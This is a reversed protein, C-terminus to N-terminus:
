GPEYGWRDLYPQVTPLVAAFHREYARWRGVARTNVPKVVQSYSPTSIFGKRRANEGPQLMADTWPLDLFEALSRVQSEFDAVFSEYRVERYTPKLLATERYWFDFARRYGTALTPLDRCLMTFELARFHQMYCSLIVDCPHRVALLLRSNPFLRRIVPIALLNMPNKDVLRQGPQLEVRRAVQQWYHARLEDLQDRTMTALRGPYRVGSDVIRDMLEHIYRTEDMAKLAPNADLTQELLTTGSRPFGVIFIPSTDASPAGSDDWAAVDAADCGFDAIKVPLGRRPLVEPAALNMYALQSRHAEELAAFADDYRGLADLCKALPYLQFHHLHFDRTTALAKRYLDHADQARGERDAVRAEVLNMDAGLAASRPDARLKDLAARAETVRNTREFVQIMRLLSEADPWPDQAAVEIAREASRLEGLNMLLLGIKALMETNLRRFTPWRLLTAVAADQNMTEDCCVAYQYAIEADDPALRVADELVLRAAEFSGRDVHVLGVNYYFDASAEGLAAARAFAALAEDHRHQAQLATGLNMWHDVYTPDRRALEAFVESARAHKGQANLAVALVNLAGLHAPDGRLAERACGEAADAQGRQLFTAAAQALATADIGTSTM